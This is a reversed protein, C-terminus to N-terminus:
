RGDFLEDADPLSLLRPLTANPLAAESTSQDKTDGARPRQLWSHSLALEATARRSPDLALMPLLFDAIERAEELAIKYKEHLVEELGWSELHKINRLQGRKKVFLDKSREGRSHLCEPMRGLLEIMLALHDEDRSHTGNKAEKPDFLFEGTILEFVMCATAWIDIEPGYKYGVIVEPSRYQRTTVDDTFHKDIWCANGLDALKSVLLASEPVVAASRPTRPPPGSAKSPSLPVSLQLSAIQATATELELSTKEQHKAEATHATAAVAATPADSFNSVQATEEKPAEDDHSDGDTDRAADKRCLSSLTIRPRVCGARLKPM